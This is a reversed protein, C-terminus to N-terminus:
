LDLAARRELFGQVFGVDDREVHVEVVFVAAEDVLVRMAVIFFPANMM